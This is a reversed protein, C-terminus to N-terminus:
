QGVIARLLNAECYCLCLWEIKQKKTQVKGELNKKKTVETKNSDHESWKHVITLCNEM